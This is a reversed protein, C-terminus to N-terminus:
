RVVLLVSLSVENREALHEDHDRKKARQRREEIKAQKRKRFGTLFERYLVFLAHFRRLIPIDVVTRLDLNWGGSTPPRCESESTMM